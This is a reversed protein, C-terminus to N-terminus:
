LCNAMGTCSLLARVHPDDVFWTSVARPKGEKGDLTPMVMKKSQVTKVILGM